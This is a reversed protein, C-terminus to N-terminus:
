SQVQFKLLKWGNARPVDFAWLVHMTLAVLGSSADTYPDRILSVAKWVPAVASGMKRCALALQFKSAVAPVHASVRCGGSIAKVHTLATMDSANGSCFKAAMHKNTGSGILLKVDGNELAYKGDVSGAIAAIYDPRGSEASPDSPATLPGSSIDFFGSVHQGIGDGALIEKDIEQAIAGSLDERLAAEMGAFVAADEIALTYRATMRKPSLVKVSWSAATSDHPSDKAVLAPVNGSSLVPYQKEGVGVSPFRVGAWLAAGRAFVRRLIPDQAASVDSPATTSADARTETEKPAIAEFPVQFSELKEEQAFEAEPGDSIREETAAAGLYRGLQLKGSLELKEKAKNDGETAVETGGVVIAARIEVEIEQLRKTHGDLESREESSLSEKALLTSAKERLESQSVQLKQLATM